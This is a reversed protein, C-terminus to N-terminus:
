PRSARETKSEDNHSSEDGDNYAAAGKEYHVGGAADADDEEVDRKAKVRLFAVKENEIHSDTKCWEGNHEGDEDNQGSAVGVCRVDTVEAGGNDEGIDKKAEAKLFAGM